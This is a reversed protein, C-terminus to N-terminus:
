PRTTLALSNCLKNRECSNVLATASLMMGSPWSTLSNGVSSSRMPSYRSLCCRAKGSPVFNEACPNFRYKPCSLFRLEQTM